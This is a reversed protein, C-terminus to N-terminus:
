INLLDSLEDIKERMLEKIGVDLTNDGLSSSSNNTYKFLENVHKASCNSNMLTRSLITIHRSRVSGITKGLKEAIDGYTFRKNVFKILQTEQQSTWKKSPKLM